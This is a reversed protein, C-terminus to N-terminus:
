DTSLMRSQETSTLKRGYDAVVKIVKRTLENVTMLYDKVDRWWKPCRAASTVVESSPKKRSENKFLQISKLYM